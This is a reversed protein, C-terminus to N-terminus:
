NWIQNKDHKNRSKNFKLHKYSQKIYQPCLKNHSKKYTGFYHATLFQRLPRFFILITLSKKM